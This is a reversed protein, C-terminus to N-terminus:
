ETFLSVIDKEVNAPEKETQQQSSSNNNNNGDIFTVTHVM